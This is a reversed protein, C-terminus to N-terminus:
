RLEAINMNNEPERNARNNKETELEQELRAIFSVYFAGVAHALTHNVLVAKSDVPDTNILRTNYKKVVDEMLKQFVNFADSNIFTALLARDTHSLEIDIDIGKIEDTVKRMLRAAKGLWPANIFM